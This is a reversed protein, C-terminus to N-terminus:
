PRAFHGARGIPVIRDFADESWLEKTIYRAYARASRIPAADYAGGPVLRKWLQEGKMVLIESARDDAVLACHLHVNTLVKETFALGFVLEHDQRKSWRPGYAKRNVAARFDDAARHLREINQWRGGGLMVAITPAMAVVTREYARREKKRDDSSRSM